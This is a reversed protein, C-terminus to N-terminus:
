NIRDGVKYFIRHTHTHLFFHKIMSTSPDLFFFHTKLLTLPKSMIIMM